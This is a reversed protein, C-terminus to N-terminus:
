DDAAPLVDHPIPDCPSLSLVELVHQCLLLLITAIVVAASLRVGWLWSQFHKSTAVATSTTETTNEM